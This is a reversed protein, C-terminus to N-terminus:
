KRVPLPPPQKSAKARGEPLSRQVLRNLGGITFPRVVLPMADKAITVALIKKDEGSPKVRAAAARVETQATAEVAFAKQARARVWAM